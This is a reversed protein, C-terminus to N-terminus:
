IIVVRRTKLATSRDIPSMVVYHAEILMSSKRTTTRPCTIGTLGILGKTDAALLYTDGAGANNAKGSGKLQGARAVRPYTDHRLVEGCIAVRLIGTWPCSSYIDRLGLNFPYTGLRVM